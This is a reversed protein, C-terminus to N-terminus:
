KNAAALDDSFRWEMRFYRSEVGRDNAKVGFIVLSGGGGPQMNVTSGPTYELLLGAGVGGVDTTKHGGYLARREVSHHVASEVDNESGNTWNDRM